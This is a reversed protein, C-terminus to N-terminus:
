ETLFRKAVIAACRDAENLVQSQKQVLPNLKKESHALGESKLRQISKVIRNEQRYPDLEILGVEAGATLSEYIMSVSDVTVWVRSAINLRQSVWTRDTDEFLTIFCNEGKFDNLSDVTEPPTRRSTTLEWKIEPNNSLLDSVQKLVRKTSWAYHKSEGGLLILGRDPLSSASYEIANLVGETSVVNKYNKFTDHKPILVLDFLFIPLSPKMLSVIKGGFRFRAYLMWLHTLHGAGIILDPSPVENFRSKTQSSFISKILSMKMSFEYLRIPVQKELAKVLGSVQAEHGQKGDKFLWIVRDQKDRLIHVKNFHVM